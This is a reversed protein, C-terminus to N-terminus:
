PLAKSRSSILLAFGHAGPLLSMYKPLRVPRWRENPFLAGLTAGLAVGVAAGYIVREGRSRFQEGCRTSACIAAGALGAPVAKTLASHVRSAGLSIEVRRVTSWPVTLTGMEPGPRFVLSDPSTSILTGRISENRQRVGTPQVSNEITVRVRAGAVLSDALEQAAGVTPLALWILVAAIRYKTRDKRRAERQGHEVRLPDPAGEDSRGPGSWGESM